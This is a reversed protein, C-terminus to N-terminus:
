MICGSAIGVRKKKFYEKVNVYKTIYLIIRLNFIYFQVPLFDNKIFNYVRLCTRGGCGFCKVNLFSNYFTLGMLTRISFYKIFLKEKWLKMRHCKFAIFVVWKVFTNNKSKVCTLSKLFVDCLITYNLTIPLIQESKIKYCRFYRSTQSMRPYMRTLVKVNATTYLFIISCKRVNYSQLRRNYNEDLM